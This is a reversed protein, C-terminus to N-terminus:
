RKFMDNISEFRTNPTSLTIPSRCEHGYIIYFPNIGISSHRHNNYAFEIMHLWKEWTTQKMGVYIRLMNELTINKQVTQGDNEHHYTTNLKIKTVCLKFLTISFESVFKCDRDNMIERPVGHHRFIERMFVEVVGYITITTVISLFHAIKTLRDVVVM